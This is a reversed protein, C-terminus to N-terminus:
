CVENSGDDVLIIEFPQKTNERVSDITRRLESGENYATIIVSIRPTTQPSNMSFSQFGCHRNNKM